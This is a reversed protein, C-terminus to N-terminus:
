DNSDYTYEEREKEGPLMLDVVRMGNLDFRSNKFKSVVFVKQDLLRKSFYKSFMLRIEVDSLQRLEIIPKKLSIRMKTYLEPVGANFVYVECNKKMRWFIFLAVICGAIVVGALILPVFNFPIIIQEGEYVITYTSKGILEKIVEGSFSATATYGSAKTGSAPASYHATATYGTPIEGYGAHENNTVRWDVSQLQLTMGNKIVSKPISAMDNNALGDFNRTDTVMYSYSTQGTESVILSEPILFLEGKYGDEDSYPLKTDFQELIRSKDSSDSDITKNESVTKSSSAPTSDRHIIESFRYKYGGQSFSHEVLSDPDYNADVTFTKYLYSREGQELLQIDTPYPIAKQEANEHQPSATNDSVDTAALVPVVMMTSMIIGAAAIVLFKVKKM